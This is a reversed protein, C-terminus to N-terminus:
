RVPANRSREMVERVRGILADDMPVPSFNIEFLAALHDGLARRAADNAPGPLTRQWDAAMWAAFFAPDLPERGGLMLYARLGLKLHDPLAWSTRLQEELRLVIRSLFVSRLARRYVQDAQAGLRSGQFLGATMLPPPSEGRQGYGWPLDRVANLTPLILTFDTDDVRTLSRPPTDLPRILADTREVAQATEVILAENGKLSISWVALLSVSAALMGGVAAADRHRRRKEEVPNLGVLNAEPFVAEPLVRDLFFSSLEGEPTSPAVAPQPAPGRLLPDVPEGAQTASVLYLGRLAAVDGVPEAGFATGLLEILPEELAAMQLPFAFTLGRRLIDPEQHMRELLREDLRRALGLLGERLADPTPVPTDADFSVGWIQSREREDLIDFFATFGSVLDAKTCLVYVPVRVGMAQRLEGLRQRLLRGHSRREADTWTTLDGLSITVVVGNLPQRPRHEALLELLGNWVRGDVAGRSDQTTYRGATDVLVARDTFWWECNRTGGIGPVPRDGTFPAGLRAAAIATTKGSGPAGIVLYWPLQYATRGGWRLGTRRDGFRAKRLRELVEDFRGRVAELENTAADLDPDSRAALAELLRANLRRHRRDAEVNLWAWVAAMTLIVMARAFAPEFPRFGNLNALPGMQWFLVALAVAGVGTVAWRVRPDASRAPPAPQPRNRRPLAPRQPM